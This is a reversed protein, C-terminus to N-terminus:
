LGQVVEYGPDLVANALLSSDNSSSLTAFDVSLTDTGTLAESLQVTFTIQGENEDSEVSLDVFSVTISM